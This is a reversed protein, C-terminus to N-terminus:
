ATAGVKGTAAEEGLDLLRKGESKEAKARKKRARRVELEVEAMEASISALRPIIEEVAQIAQGQAQRLPFPTLIGFWRLPDAHDPRNKKESDREESAPAEDQEKEDDDGEDDNRDSGRERGDGNEGGEAACTYVGVSVVVVGGGGEGGNQDEGEEERAVGKISVRRSAQMRQDYYDQGYRQGRNASVFNARALSQFLSAQLTNLTARLSTYSDLLALYCHLLADIEITQTQTETESPTPDMTMTM